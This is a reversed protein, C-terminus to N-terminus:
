LRVAFQIVVQGEVAISLMDASVDFMMIFIYINSHVSLSILAKKLHLGRGSIRRGM